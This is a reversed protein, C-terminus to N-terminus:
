RGGTLAGTTATTATTATSPGRASWIGMRLGANVFRRWRWLAHGGTARTSIACFSGSTKPPAGQRSSGNTGNTPPM